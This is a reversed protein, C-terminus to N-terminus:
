ENVLAYASIKRVRLAILMSVVYATLVLAACVIITQDIQVPLNLKVVGMSSTMASVMPSFGFYGGIAGTVVGTIIAPMMNLAIQNMLQLTTFGVAKQIGLERRRRLITTKIVMYLVLMVVFGTIALILYSVAAFAGGMADLMTAMQEEINLVSDVAYGSQEVKEIFAKADTRDHFYLNYGLMEYDPLVQRLGEITIIGNFGNNNLYQVTGTIIFDKETNGSKMKVTDGVSKGIVRLALVGLAIENDHRPYWGELLMNGELLSTDEVYALAVGTEDATLFIATFAYGFVKRVEPQELLMQKFAEGNEGSRLHFNLDPMEGFAARAFTERGYNMNHNLAIGAVSALTVAAIIVSITVAQKKNQLLQKFALLLTLSGSTQALPLSNKKFSHTSVGGRLAILPHLKNIKRASLFTIVTVLLVVAILSLAALAMDFGPEWVLAIMPKLVAAIVPLAIQSLAIGAIGGTLAIMSFQATIASVIQINRYGVAKQTGINTMNEEINNIIRFRIVILSVALLIMAFVVIIVAVISSVFTRANKAGNYSGLAFSGDQSIDKQFDAYFYISDETKEFRVTLLNLGNETFEEELETYKEDSVYFRHVTNSAAGFMFEKTAGAVKFTLETGALTVKFDDGINLNGALMMFYPVYIGNGTLPIYEGVLSPTDMKQAETIRSLMLVCIGKNDNITYDGWGGLIDIVEYETVSPYSNIYDIHEDLSVKREYIGTFHAAHSEEAQQDFFNGIGFFTVVGANLLLAAIVMFVFLSATQSKNKRINASVLM